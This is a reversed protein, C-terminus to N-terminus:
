AWRTRRRHSKYARLGYGAAFGLAFIFLIIAAEMSEELWDNGTIRINKEFNTKPPLFKTLGGL